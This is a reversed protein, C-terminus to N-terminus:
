KRGRVQELLPVALKAEPGSADQRILAEYEAAADAFRNAAQYSQGLYLRTKKRTPELELARRFQNIADSYSGVKYYYTGLHHRVTATEAIKLSQALLSLAKDMKAGQNMYTVGLDNMYEISDPDLQNAKELAEEAQIVVGQLYLAKGLRHYAKASSAELRIAERYYKAADSYNRQVYAADGTEMARDFREKRIGIPERGGGAGGGGPGAGGDGGPEVAAGLPTGPTPEAIVFPRRSSDFGRRGSRGLVSVRLLCADSRVRPPIWSFRGNNPARDALSEWTRGGDPSFEITVPDDALDREACAWQIWTPQGGKIVGGNRLRSLEVVIPNTQIDVWSQIAERGEPLQGANGAKDVGVCSLGYRGNAGEFLIPKEPPDNATGAKVWHEGNDTTVYLDVRSLGAAGRDRSEHQVLVKDTTSDRPGVAISQPPQSDLWLNGVSIAQGINGSLDMAEVMLRVSDSTERPLAIYAKGTNPLGSKLEAWTQGGDLSYKITIPEEPFRDDQADWTLEVRAGGAIVGEPARLIRVTPPTKDAADTTSRGPAEPAGGTAPATISFNRESTDFGRRGTRGLVSIRLKCDQSRRRPPLWAYRGTNPARDVVTEWGRGGDMSLEITIPDDALDTERCVWQIFIEEGGKIVGGKKLRVLDLSIPTTEIDLVLQISDASDPIAGANGAKDVGVCCVGYRGNAGEFPIPRDADVTSAAKQWSAGGDTTVFLDVRALGAPGLDRAVHEILVRDNTSDRPGIAKCEPPKSDLRLNSASKAATANGGEDVAEVMLRFTETTERPVTVVARGTNPLGGRLMTWSAGGDLSFRINIPNPGLHDDSAEWLLEKQSGGALLEGGLASRLRVAPATRDVVLTFMGQDEPGPPRTQNGLKDAAAIWFAYKGEPLQVPFPAGPPEATGCDKWIPSADSRQYMRVWAVGAGTDAVTYRVLLDPLHERDVALFAVEPADADIGFVASPESTSTLGAEDTARVRLRFATGSEKPLEIMARGANALDQAHRFWTGGADRSLEITIPTPGFFFDSAEWAVEVKSAGGLTGRPATVLRVAPRTRDILVTQMAASGHKPADSRLGAENEAVLWLGYRGEESVAFNLPEDPGIEGFNTWTEGRDKTVWLSLKTVKAVGGGLGHEYPLIFEGRGATGGQKEFPAKLVVTPSHWDVLFTKMPEDTEVPAKTVNGSRDAVQLYFGYRGAPVKIRFPSKATSDQGYPEWARSGEQRFWLKVWAVGSGKDTAEYDLAGEPGTMAQLGVLSAVPPLSDVNFPISADSFTVNGGDDVAKVRLQYSEAPVKPVDIKAAGKNEINIEYPTWTKAQDRSLEISIPRGGFHLDTAEWQVEITEGGKLDGQPAAVLKVRPPTWDLLFAMMPRDDVTPGPSVNGAKDAAQLWLGYRGEPLRALFPSAAKPDEGYPTWSKEGEKQYWLKVWAVGSAREITSYTISLGEGPVKESWVLQVSPATADILVAPSPESVGVNGAEDVATVRVRVAGEEKPFDVSVRGSNAVGQVLKQWTQGEDRTLELGIPRPAMHDDTAVWSMDGRSGAKLHAPFETKLVVQPPTWDVLYTVAPPQGAAPVPASRNGAGDVAELWFGYRGEPLKVAFPSAKDPDEGYCQWTRTGERLYWLTVSTLETPVKSSTYKIAIEEKSMRALDQIKLVPAISDIGFPPTPESYGLNGAEDRAAIRLRFSRGNEGPLDVALRGANPQADLITAWHQGDDRSLEVSLPSGSLHADSAEVQLEKRTGGSVVGEIASKLRVTPPSWDVVVRQQPATRAQPPPTRAGLSSESSLYVGYEGEGEVALELQQPPAVTRVEKWTAGGDATVFLTVKTVKSAGPEVVDYPVAFRKANTSALPKPQAGPTTSDIAFDAVSAASTANGAQDEATVRIRFNSGTVMPLRWLFRGRNEVAKAIPQWTKGSDVSVEITIPEPKLNEDKAEWNIFLSAGGLQTEGGNFNLLTVLPVKTDVILYTKPSIGTTPEPTANGVKDYGVLYLGYRGDGPANFPIPNQDLPYTEGKVWREGDTVTYWLEVKDAGSPGRERLQYGIKAAVEKATIPGNVVVDPPDSDLAFTVPALLEMPQGDAGLLLMKVQAKDATKRPLTWAYTGDKDLKETVLEWPEEGVHALISIPHPDLDPSQAVKWTLTIADGGRYCKGAEVGPQVDAKVPLVRLSILLERLCPNGAGDVAKLRFLLAEANKPLYGKYRDSAGLNRGLERWTTGTDTSAELTVCERPLPNADKLEWSFSFPAGPTHVDKEAVDHLEFTPPTTDVTLRGVVGKNGQPSPMANGAEDIGRCYFVYAGDALELPCPKGLQGKERTQTEKLQWTQGADSSVYIEIKTLPAVPSPKIQYTVDVFKKNSFGQNTCAVLPVESTIFFPGKIAESSNGVRDTVIVKLLCRDSNLMPAAWTYAGTDKMREVITSWESGRTSSFQITIPEDGLSAGPEVKWRIDIPGGGRFANAALDQLTVIPKSEVVHVVIEATGENDARDVARVRVAYDLQRVPFQYKQVGVRPLRAAVERWFTRKGSPEIESVDISVPTEGLNSDLAVWEIDIAGRSKVAIDNKPSAISVEPRQTDVLVVLDGADGPAPDPSRNKMVDSTVAAISYLGDGLDMPVGALQAPEVKKLFRWTAGRDRSVWLEVFDLGQEEGPQFRVALSFQNARSIAPAVLTPKVADSLLTFPKASVEEGVNGTRDRAAVKLLCTRSTVRPTLWVYRGTNPLNRDAFIWSKGLDRSFLVDIGNPDMNPDTAEWTVPLRSGGAFQGGENFSTIRVHPPTADVIIKHLVAGENGAVDKAVVKLVYEGSKNPMPVNARSQAAEQDVLPQFAKGPEEAILISVPRQLLNEDQAQWQVLVQEGGRFYAGDAIGVVTLTPPRTDVIVRRQPGDGDEPARNQNGAKDVAVFWLGWRGDPLEVEATALRLDSGMNRLDVAKSLRWTQGADPTTWVEWRVLGAPGTDKLTEPVLSLTGTRVGEPVPVSITPLESDITFNDHSAIENRTGLKDMASIRARFRDGNVKPVRWLFQGTNPINRAVLEWNDGGDASTEITVFDRALHTDEARWRIPYDSGGRVCEGGAPSRLDLRPAGTDVVLELQPDSAADPPDVRNGVQDSATLLLSYTGDPADFDITPEAGRYEGFRRWSKEDTARYWLEITAIGARGFDRAEYSLRVPVKKAIAPGNVRAMPRLSDISFNSEGEAIGENGAADRATVRVRFKEGSDPPVPWPFLGSNPLNTRVENWTRGGDASLEIGITLAGGSDDVAQWRLDRVSGGQLVEGGQLTLLKVDPNRTDQAHAAGQGLLAAALALAQLFRRPRNM